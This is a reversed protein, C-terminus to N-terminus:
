LAEQRENEGGENANHRHATPRLHGNKIALGIFSQMPGVALMHEIVGRPYVDRFEMAFQIGMEAIELGDIYSQADELRNSM